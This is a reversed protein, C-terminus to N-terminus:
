KSADFVAQDCPYLQRFTIPIDGPQYVSGARIVLLPEIMRHGERITQHTDAFSYLGERVQFQFIDANSGVRLSGIENERRLARAPADTTKLVVNYLSMGLCLHKSMVQPLTVSWPAAASYRHLDTSITDPYFHHEFARQATEWSFSGCGHGIDFIVGRERALRLQPIFGDPTDVVMGNSRGHFCHTLIDGPRLRDLVYQEDAGASIHTMLPVQAGRAADLALDLARNGHNATMAGLRVKVGVAVQPYREIVISTEEPRAYRLDVLEEAFPSHLGLFSIHVFALIRARSTEIATRCFDPFNAFGSTGADVATTVGHNLGIEANIGYLGGEYWHGHLDILGPCVYTGAAERIDPCGSADLNPGLAAIRTGVIGVDAIQNVGQAPDIVHGNRIVLDFAKIRHSDV